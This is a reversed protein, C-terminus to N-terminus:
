MVDDDPPYVFSRDELIILVLGTEEFPESFIDNLPLALHMCPDDHGVMDMQEKFTALVAYRRDHAFLKGPVGLIKVSSMSSGTMEELIAIFGNEAVFIIIKKGKHAIYM